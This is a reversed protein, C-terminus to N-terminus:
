DLQTNVEAVLKLFQEKSIEASNVITNKANKGDKASLVVSVNGNATVMIEIYSHDDFSIKM